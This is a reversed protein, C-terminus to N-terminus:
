RKKQIAERQDDINEQVAASLDVLAKLGPTGAEGHASECRTAKGRTLCGTFNKAAADALKPTVKIKDLAALARDVAADNKVDGTVDANTNRPKDGDPGEYTWVYHLKTGTVTMTTRMTSETGKASHMHAYWTLTFDARASTALGLLAGVAVLRALIRM